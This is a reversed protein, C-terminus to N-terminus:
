TDSLNQDAQSESVRPINIRPVMLGTGLGKWTYACESVCTSVYVPRLVLSPCWESTIRYIFHDVYVTLHMEQSGPLLDLSVNKAIQSTNTPNLFACHYISRQRIAISQVANNCACATVAYWVLSFICQYNRDPPDIVRHTLGRVAGSWFLQLGVL